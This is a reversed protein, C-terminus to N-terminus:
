SCASRKRCALHANEAPLEADFGTKKRNELLLYESGDARILVAFCERNSGEISFPVAKTQDIMDSKVLRTEKAWPSIHIAKRWARM